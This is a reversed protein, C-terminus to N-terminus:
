KKYYTLYSSKSTSLNNIQSLLCARIGRDRLKKNTLKYSLSKLCGVCGQKFSGHHGFM